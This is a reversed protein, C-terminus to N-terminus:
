GMRREPNWPVIISPLDDWDARVTLPLCHHAHYEQEMCTQDGSTNATDDCNNDFDMCHRSVPPLVYFRNIDAFNGSFIIIPELIVVSFDLSMNLSDFELAPQSKKRKGWEGYANAIHNLDCFGVTIALCLVMLIWNLEPIYIQGEIWRSTHLVKIRPFCGWARSQRIISCSGSIASQSAIVAVFIAMLYVPWFMPDLLYCHFNLCFISYCLLCIIHWVLSSSPISVLCVPFQLMFAQPCHMFIKQSIHLKAWTSFCLARTLPVCSRWRCQTVSINVLLITFCKM